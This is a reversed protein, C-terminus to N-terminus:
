GGLREAIKARLAVLDYDFPTADGSLQAVERVVREALARSIDDLDLRTGLARLADLEADALVGDLGAIWRAVGYVYGRDAVSLRSLDLTDLAIGEKTATEIAEIEKLDLGEELATKVIADAEDADLSGDAWGVAALALYVDKGLGSGANGM